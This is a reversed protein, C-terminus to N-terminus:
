SKGKKRPGTILSGGDKHVPFNPHNGSSDATGKAHGVDYFPTEPKVQSTPIPSQEDKSKYV